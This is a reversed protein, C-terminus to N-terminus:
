PCHTADDGDIVELFAGLDGVHAEDGLLLRAV